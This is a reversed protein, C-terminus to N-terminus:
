DYFPSEREITDGKGLLTHREGADCDECPFDQKIKGDSVPCEFDGYKCGHFICCHTRHVGYKELPLPPVEIWENSNDQKKFVNEVIKVDESNMEGAVIAMYFILSRLDSDHDNWVHVESISAAEFEAKPDNLIIKYNM